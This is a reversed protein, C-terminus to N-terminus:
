HCSGHARERRALHLMAAARNAERHRGPLTEKRGAFGAFSRWYDDTGRKTGIIAFKPPRLFLTYVGGGKELFHLLRTWLEGLNNISNASRRTTCCSRSVSSPM